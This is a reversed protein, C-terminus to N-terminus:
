GRKGKERLSSLSDRAQMAKEGIVKLMAVLSRVLADREPGEQALAGELVVPLTRKLSEVNNGIEMIQGAHGIPIAALDDDSLEVAALEALMPEFLGRVYLPSRGKETLQNWTSAMDAARSIVFLQYRLRLVARRLRSRAQGRRLTEALLAGGLLALSAILAAITELWERSLLACLGVFECQM